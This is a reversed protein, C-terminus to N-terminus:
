IDKVELDPFVNFDKNYLGYLQENLKQITPRQVKFPEQKAIYAKGILQNTNKDTCCFASWYHSPINIKKKLTQGERVPTWNNGPVVGTVIYAQHNNNFRCNHNILGLMREEVEQAWAENSSQLQPATNTLTFTSDAQDQDAAFINPFLHGRSYGSDNYDSNVAQNKIKKVTAEDHPSDMMEQKHKNEEIDELQPEIRWTEDRETTVATRFTYASYVPIKKETDYVTAFRYVNKWRQCIM